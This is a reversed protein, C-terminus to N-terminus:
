LARMNNRSVEPIFPGGSGEPIFPPGGSGEPIFPPGDGGAPIFLSGYGELTFLAGNGETLYSGVAM